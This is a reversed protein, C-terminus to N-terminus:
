AVTNTGWVRQGIVVDEGTRNIPDTNGPGMGVGDAADAAVVVFSLTDNIDADQVARIPASESESGSGLANGGIHQSIQPDRANEDQDLTTWDEVKPDPAGTNIGIGGANSGGLNMGDSFSADPVESERATVTDERLTYSPLNQAM